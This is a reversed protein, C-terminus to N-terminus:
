AAKRWLQRSARRAGEALAELKAWCVSPHGVRTGLGCDTGALVNERGVLNAYRVLREAVLDPHEIFDSYHGVVGPVLTAGEPLRVDEFVRWEHEHCPNSAEISYSGATVSFILDAIDRLPIDDHHPGHYSGWCVHLRVRERPIDKLAHNLAEIRMAAYKLYEPVTMDPLCNWCDPLDPDDIQLLLGADTIAKYEEHMVDAIAFVFEENSKYYDNGLWHEVTGPTNAPLFGYAAGAKELAAKFNEIDRQLEARGTESFRLNEVCVPFGMGERSRPRPNIDFYGDFRRADRAIISLVEERGDRHERVEFGEIRERVYNTFNSKGYEGDNVVDIGCDLQKKVVEEVAGPLRAALAAADYPKEAAKDAIMARLDDPRPLSGAHTTLIRETSHIM